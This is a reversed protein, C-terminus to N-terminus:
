LTFLLVLFLVVWLGDMFHWYLRLMQLQLRRYPNRIFLLTRVGDAAAHRTRAWFYALFSMGLLLHMAHLASLWYVLTGAAAKQLPLGSLFLERWGAVQAAVFGISLLLTYGLARSLRRLNDKRYFRATPRLMASSILLLVTSLGFFRPFPHSGIPHTTRAHLYMFILVIFLVTIGLLGLYLMMLFPHTREMRALPSLRGPGVRHRKGSESSSNM